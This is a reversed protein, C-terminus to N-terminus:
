VAAPDFLRVASEVGTASLRRGTRTGVLEHLRELHDYLAFRRAYTFAGPPADVDRSFLEPDAAGVELVEAVRARELEDHGVYAAYFVVELEAAATRLVIAQAGAETVTVDAALSEGDVSLALPLYATESM